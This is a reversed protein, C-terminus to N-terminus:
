GYFAKDHLHSTLGRCHKGWHTEFSFRVHWNADDAGFREMRWLYEELDLAIDALDDIADGTLAAAEIELSDFVMSYYGLDPFRKGLLAKWDKWKALHQDKWPVEEDSDDPETVPVAHYANMLGDLLELLRVVTPPEGERIASLYNQAAEFM